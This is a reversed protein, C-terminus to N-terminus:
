RPRASAGPDPCSERTTARRRTLGLLLALWWAGGATAGCTGSKDGGGGTDVASDETEWRALTYSARDQSLGTVALTEGAFVELQQGQRGPASLVVDGTVELAQDDDVRYYHTGLYALVGSAGPEALGQRVPSEYAGFERLDEAGVVGTFGAWVQEASQGLAEALVLDWAASGRESGLEWVDRMGNAGTLHEEIYANLLFMGYPHYGATSSYRLEPAQAYYASQAAYANADPLALEAAWEASAEWYWSEEDGGYYDRLAFQVAHHFEHASLSRFFAPNSAWQPHIFVVPYGGPFDESEYPVTLGTGSLSPDLVVWLLFDDSSVPARWGHQEILVAWAEEMADSVLQAAAESADDGNWAVTFNESDVHNQMRQGYVSKM